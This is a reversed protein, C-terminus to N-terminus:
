PFYQGLNRIQNDNEGNDVNSVALGEEETGPFGLCPFCYRTKYCPIGAALHAAKLWLDDAMPCKRSIQVRDLFENSIRNPHLIAGAGGTVLIRHSPKGDSRIQKEWASYPAILGDTGIIIRHCRCGVYADARDEAVLREFWGPAYIIDDDCIVFPDRHGEEIM